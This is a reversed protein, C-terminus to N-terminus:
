GAGSGLHRGLRIALAAITLTPHHASYSPFSSGGAVYLNRIRHHRLNGDVVGDRQGMFCTGLLHAGGGPPATVAKVAAVGYRRLRRPLDVDLHSRSRELYQSDVPYSIRNLPLGFSDKRPSLEVFRGALPVDEGLADLVITREFRRRVEERMKTGSRGAAVAQIVGEAISAGPNLPYM